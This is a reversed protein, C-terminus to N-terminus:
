DHLLQDIPGSDSIDGDADMHRDKSGIVFADCPKYWYETSVSWDMRRDVVKSANRTDKFLSQVSREKDRWLTDILENFCFRVKFEYTDYDSFYRYRRTWNLM